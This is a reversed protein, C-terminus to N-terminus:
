LRMEQGAAPTGSPLPQGFAPRVPVAADEEEWNSVGDKVLKFELADVLAFWSADIINESVGITAWSHKGDTSNVLVRIKSGTSNGSSVVRVKYDLLRVAKLAPYFKDILKRLALDIAHVPGNGVARTEAVVDGVQLRISARAESATIGHGGGDGRSQSEVKLEHLRFYVPRRGRAKDLLLKFSADAGEFQYGKNEMDKIMDVIAPTAPDSADLDLGYERAKHLINSKGSLDSILVRRRNGVTEPELHEYTKSDKMVASVHVGGKHAFASRGVYPQNARPRNNSLEDVQRSVETLTTLRGEPLCKMGLKAELGPIISILNANGCREGYGNITGQVMGAGATVAALSNAVALEGDNHAHIGILCSTTEAVKETISEIEGPLSGGNTDCLVVGDAGGRVAAAVAALAYTSDDKYGDFFHEADFYVEDVRSKLWHVSEEIMELNVAPDINLAHTAQFRWSKGFITVVPTGAELLARLVPDQDCSLGVRRTSGFATLRSNKLNLGAAKHFFEKDRPNSGPWGGEIWHIGLDDLLSAVSLKDAVSLQFGEGQTGDRLTTDYLGIKRM